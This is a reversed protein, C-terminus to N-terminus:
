SATTAGSPVTVPAHCYLPSGPTGPITFKVTLAGNVPWSVPVRISAHKRERCLRLAEIAVRQSHRQYPLIALTVPIELECFKRAMKLDLGLDDIVIAAMKEQKTAGQEQLQYPAAALDNRGGVTEVRYARYLGQSVVGMAGGALLTTCWALFM